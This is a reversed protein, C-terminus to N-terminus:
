SEGKTRRNGCKRRGEEKKKLSKEEFNRKEIM